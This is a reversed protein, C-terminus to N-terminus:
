LDFRYYGGQQYIHQGASDACTSRYNVSCIAAKHDRGSIIAPGLLHQTRPILDRGVRLAATVGEPDLHRVEGGLLRTYDFLVEPALLCQLADWRQRDVCWKM